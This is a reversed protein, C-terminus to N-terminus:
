KALHFGIVGSEMESLEMRIVVLDLLGHPLDPEEEVGVLQGAIEIGLLGEHATHKPIHSRIGPFLM